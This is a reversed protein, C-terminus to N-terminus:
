LLSTRFRALRWKFGNIMWWLGREVENYLSMEGALFYRPFLEEIGRLEACDTAIVEPYIGGCM